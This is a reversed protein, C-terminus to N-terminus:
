RRGELPLTYIASAIRRNLAYGNKVVRDRVLQRYPTWNGLVVVDVTHERLHWLLEPLSMLKFRVVEPPPLKDSFYLAFHNEMGPLITARTEVLYGPWFSIAGPRGPRVERAIPVFVAATLSVLLGYVVAPHAREIRTIASAATM